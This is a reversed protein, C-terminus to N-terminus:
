NKKYEVKEGAGRYVQKTNGRVKKEDSISNSRYRDAGDNERVSIVHNM